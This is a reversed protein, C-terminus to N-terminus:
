DAMHITENSRETIIGYLFAFTLLNKFLKKYNTSLEDRSPCFFIKKLFITLFNIKEMSLLILNLYLSRFNELFSNGFVTPLRTVFTYTM